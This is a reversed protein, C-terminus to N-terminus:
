QNYPNSCNKKNIMSQRLEMTKIEFTNKVDLIILILVQSIWTVM